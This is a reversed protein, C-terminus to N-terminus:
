CFLYREQTICNHSNRTSELSIDGPGKNVNGHKIIIISLGTVEFVSQIYWIANDASYDNPAPRVSETTLALNWPM